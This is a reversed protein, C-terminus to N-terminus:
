PRLRRDFFAATAAYARLWSAHRLFGHIEDPLVLEEYEVGHARLAEALRVSESFPVNHDDDGQILLVPSRWGALASMPSAAFALAKAAPPVDSDFFPMGGRGAFDTHYWDHVGHLDVGAAFLDSNRALGLATLYGGYSGGWLGIRTADVDGRARLFDAAALVDNYESAGTPGIGPAERYDLGYGIGARYNLALVVYGRSALYQNMAYANSYYDMYHFGLLMQRIPGGHLFVLAPHRAGGGPPLFLTAHAAVGAREPLTVAVPTVLADRPFDHPLAGPVLDTVANRAGLVAAHMPVSATAALLAIAGGDPAIAPQTEIGTGATLAEVSAEAPRLRWLHRREIDGANSAYVISAGDASAAAYEIEFAGPTLLRAPGGRRSVAYLHLWGDNEAPFVLTDGNWFLQADSALPHFVSGAGRAARYAETVSGDTLNAVRISWPAGAAHPGGWIEEHTSPVRLFALATGDASWRPEVDYDFSADVWRLARSGFTFVGVFSHDGRQSVFALRSGDPSFRLSDAAGRAKFLPEPKAGRAPTVSFVEGHQLYVVRDGAPSAVPAHGAGLKAPAGGHFDVMWVEHEVGDALQAPNAGPKDPYEADGGLVYVLLDRHPVFALETVDRGDDDAYRTLQRSAYGGGRAPTALWVNRRGALDNAWAFRHGEPAAVLGSAFPAGLVQELTFSQAAAGTAGLLLAAILTLRGANTM